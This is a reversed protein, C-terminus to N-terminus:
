SVACFSSENIAWTCTNAPIYVLNTKLLEDGLDGSETEGWGYVTLPAEHERALSHYIDIPSLSSAAAKNLTILAIDHRYNDHSGKYLPHVFIADARHSYDNLYLPTEVKGINLYINKAKKNRVCHAATLVFEPHILTGGCAGGMFADEDHGSLIFLGVVWEAQHLEVTKGGYIMPMMAPQALLSSSLLLLLAGVTNALGQLGQM